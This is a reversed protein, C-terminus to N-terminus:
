WMKGFVLQYLVIQELDQASAVNWMRKELIPM